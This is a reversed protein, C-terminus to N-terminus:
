HVNLLDNGHIVSKKLLLSGQIESNVFHQVMVLM